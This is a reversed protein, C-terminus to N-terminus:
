CGPEVSKATCLYVPGSFEVQSEDAPLQENVLFDLIYKLRDRDAMVAALQETHTM